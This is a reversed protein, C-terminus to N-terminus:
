LNFYIEFIGFIVPSTPINILVFFREKHSAKQIPSGLPITQSMAQAISIGSREDALASRREEARRESTTSGM